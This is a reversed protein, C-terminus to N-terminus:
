ALGKEKMWEEFCRPDTDIKPHAWAEGARWAQPILGRLRDREKVIARIDDSIKRRKEADEDLYRLCKCGGNTHMGKPSGFICDGDHCGHEDSM